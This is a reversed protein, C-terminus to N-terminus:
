TYDTNSNVIGSSGDEADFSSESAVPRVKKRIQQIKKISM